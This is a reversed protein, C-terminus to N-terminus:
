LATLLDSLQKMEIAGAPCTEGYHNLFFTRVGAALGAQVGTLSDEVIVCETPKRGLSSIAHLYLAPNPKFLGCDYASFLRTGHGASFFPLLQCLQLTDRMKSQPGNSVVALQLAKQQLQQLVSAAGAVPKLKATFLLQLRARYETEYNAPRNIQHAQCLRSFIDSLRGGRYHRILEELSLEVGYGAFQQQLALNCLYESDVLTGDNDFLVARIPTTPDTM